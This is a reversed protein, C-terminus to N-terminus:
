NKESLRKVDKVWKNWTAQQDAFDSPYPGTAMHIETTNDEQNESILLKESYHFGNRNYDIHLYYNGYVMGVYGDAKEGDTDLKLRAEAEADWESSFFAQKDFKKGLQKFYATQVIAYWVDESTAKLVSKSYFFPQPWGETKLQNLMRYAVVQVAPVTSWM